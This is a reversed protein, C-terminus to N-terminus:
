IHTTTPNTDRSTTVIGDTDVLIPYKLLHWKRHDADANVRQVCEITEPM